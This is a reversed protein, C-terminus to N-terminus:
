FYHNIDFFKSNKLKSQVVKVDVSLGLIVIDMGAVEEQLIVISFSQDMRIGSVDEHHVKITFIWKTNQSYQRQLTNANRRKSELRNWPTGIAFALTLKPCRM